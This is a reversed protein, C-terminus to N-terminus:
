AMCLTNLKWYLGENAKAMSGNALSKIITIEEQDATGGNMVTMCLAACGNM